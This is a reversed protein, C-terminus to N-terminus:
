GVGTKGEKMTILNFKIMILEVEGCGQQQTLANIAGQIVMGQTQAGASDWIDWKSNFGSFPMQLQIQAPCDWLNESPLLHEAAEEWIGSCLSTCWCWAEPFKWM